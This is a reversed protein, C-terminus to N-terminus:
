EETHAEEAPSEVSSQREVTKWQYINVVEERLGTCSGSEDYTKKLGLIAEVSAVRLDKSSIIDLLEELPISSVPKGDLLHGRLTVKTSGKAGPCPYVKVLWSPWFSREQDSVVAKVATQNGMPSGFPTTPFIRWMEGQEPSFSTGSSAIRWSRALTDSKKVEELISNVNGMKYTPPMTRGM